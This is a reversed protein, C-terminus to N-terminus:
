KANKFLAKQLPPLILLAGVGGIFATVLQPLSFSASLVAGQKQPLNLVFPIAWRVIGFHLLLFKFGAGFVLAFIGFPFFQGKGIKCVFFFWTVVFLLNGLMVFPLIAPFAPGIGLLFAFLPSLLAVFVGGWFGCLVSSAILVLNVLSGTVYQGLPRTTAQMALLLALFVATRTITRTFNKSNRM